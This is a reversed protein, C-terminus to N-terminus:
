LIDLAGGQGGDGVGNPITASAVGAMSVGLDITVWRSARGVIRLWRAEVLDHVARRLTPLSVGTAAGLEALSMPRALLHTVISRPTDMAPTADAVM